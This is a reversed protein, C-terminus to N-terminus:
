RMNRSSSTSSMLVYLFSRSWFNMSKYFSNWTSWSIDVNVVRATRRGEAKEILLFIGTHTIVLIYQAIVIELIRTLNSYRNLKCVYNLM